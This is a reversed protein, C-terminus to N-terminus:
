VPGNQSSNEAGDGIAGGGAVEGDGSKDASERVDPALLLPSQKASSTAQAGAIAGPRSTRGHGIQARTAPRGRMAENEERRAGPEVTTERRRWLHWGDAHRRCPARRNEFWDPAMAFRDRARPIRFQPSQFIAGGSWPSFHGRIRSFRGRFLRTWPLAGAFAGCVRTKTRMVPLTQRLLVTQSPRSSEFRRIASDFDAAKGSPSAGVVGSPTRAPRVPPTANWIMEPPFTFGSKWTRAGSGKRVM